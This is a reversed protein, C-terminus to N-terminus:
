RNLFYTFIMDAIVILSISLVVARTTSKGVGEAGGTVLFGNSVGVLTIIVAFVASKLLGQILDDAELVSYCRDAYASFSM